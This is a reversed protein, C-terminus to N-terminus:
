LAAPNHTRVEKGLLDTLRRHQSSVAALQSSPWVCRSPGPQLLRHQQGRSVLDPDAFRPAARFAACQMDTAAGYFM